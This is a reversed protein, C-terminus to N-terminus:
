LLQDFSKFLFESNKFASSLVTLAVYKANWSRLNGNSNTNSNIDSNTLTASINVANQLQAARKLDEERERLQIEAVFLESERRELASQRENLEAEKQELMKAIRIEEVRIAAKNQQLTEELMQKLNDGQSLNSRQSSALSLQQQLVNRQEDLTQKVFERTEKEHRQVSEILQCIPEMIPQLNPSSPPANVPRYVIRDGYGEGSSMAQKMMQLQRKYIKIDERYSANERACVKIDKRLSRNSAELERVLQLQAEQCYLLYEIM